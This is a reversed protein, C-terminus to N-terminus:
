CCSGIEARVTVRVIMRVRMESEAVLLVEEEEARELAERTPAGAEAKARPPRLAVRPVVLQHQLVPLRTLQLQFVVM